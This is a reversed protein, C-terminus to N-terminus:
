QIYFAFSFRCRTGCRTRTCRVICRKREIGRVASICEWFYQRGTNWLIGLFLVGRRADLESRARICDGVHRVDLGSCLAGGWFWAIHILSQGQGSSSPNLQICSGFFNYDYSHAVGRGAFEWKAWFSNRRWFLLEGIRPELDADEAKEEAELRRLVTEDVLLTGNEHEVYSGIAENLTKRLEFPSGHTAIRRAFVGAAFRGWVHIPAISIATPWEEFCPWCIAHGKLDFRGLAGAQVRPYCCWTCRRSTPSSWSLPDYISPRSPHEFQYNGTQIPKRLFYDWDYGISAWPVFSLM